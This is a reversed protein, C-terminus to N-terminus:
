DLSKLDDPYDFDFYCGQTFFRVTFSIDKWISKEPSYYVITNKPFVVESYFVGTAPDLVINNTVYGSAKLSGTLSGKPNINILQYTVRTGLPLGPYVVGGEVYFFNDPDEGEKPEGLFPYIFEINKCKKIEVDKFTYSMLLAYTGDSDVTSCAKAQNSEAYNSQTTDLKNWKEGTWRYIASVWGSSSALTNFCVSASGGALGSIQIGDGNFQIEGSPNNVPLFLGSNGVVTGPLEEMRITKTQMSTGGSLLTVTGQDQLPSAKVASFASLLLSIVVFFVVLFLGKKRM